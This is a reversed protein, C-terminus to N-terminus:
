AAVESVNALRAQVMQRVTKRFRYLREIAFAMEIGCGRKLHKSNHAGAVLGRETDYVVPAPMGTIAAFESVEDATLTPVASFEDRADIVALMDKAARSIGSRDIQM